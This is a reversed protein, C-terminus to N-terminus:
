VGVVYLRYSPNYSVIGLVLEIFGMGLVEM